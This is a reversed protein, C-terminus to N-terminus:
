FEEDEEYGEEEDYDGATDIVIHGFTIQGKDDGCNADTLTVPFEVINGGGFYAERSRIEDALIVGLTGSDVGYRNGFNDRYEGDGYATGFIIFKRGDSLQLEGTVESGNIGAPFTLECVEEWVDKMVYCLDGVYYKTTAMPTEPTLTLPPKRRNYDYM